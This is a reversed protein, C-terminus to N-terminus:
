NLVCASTGTTVRTGTCLNYDGKHEKNHPMKALYKRKTEAMYKRRLRGHTQPTIKEIELLVDAVDRGHSDKDERPFYLDRLGNIDTDTLGYGVSQQAGSVIM